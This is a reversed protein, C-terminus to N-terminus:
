GGIVKKIQEFGDRLTETITDLMNELPNATEPDASSSAKGGIAKAVKNAGFQQPIHKTNLVQNYFGKAAADDGTHYTLMSTERITEERAGARARAGMGIDLDAKLGSFKDSVIDGIGGFLGVQGAIKKGIAFGAGMLAGKKFGGMGKSSKGTTQDNIRRAAQEGQKGLDKLDSEAKRTDLNM